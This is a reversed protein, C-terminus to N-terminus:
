PVRFGLWDLRARVAAGQLFSLVDRAGQYVAAAPRAGAEHHEGLAPEDARFQRLLMGFRGNTRAQRSAM